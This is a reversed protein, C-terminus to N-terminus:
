VTLGGDLFAAPVQELLDSAVLGREGCREAALDGARGHYFVGSVAAELDDAGGALLAAIVGTLVDGVGGSAMGPNGTPNVWVEGDATATVTAAGKLVVVCSLDGAAQRAAGVRDAQIDTVSLDVLRSLEGPHPTIVTPASRDKLVDTADVCANLGDADVVLPQSIRGILERALEQTESVQSLGPGLAVADCNEAFALIQAATERALSRQGTEPVPLTMVETCKAELIDNLSEPVALTVLGAGSRAAGLGALAAAGTMGASGAVILLRGADGKHMDGWRYPLMLWADVAETLNTTLADSTLLEQPLSIDVVEIEGCLDRGPYCYHGVKPLGFTLTRDAEVAEGLVAGTDSSLGSPIDVALVLALSQNITEIASQAAGHVEGSIGIGLIADIVIDASDVAAELVETDPNEVIPLGMKQAIRCNTAADGSLEGAEALLFVEVSMGRNYLHRAAVFGDGGNNGRGCVVAVHGFGEVMEEAADAVARGANEMLVTGAIGYEEIATHDISRMQQSTVLKM